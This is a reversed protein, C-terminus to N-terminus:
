DLYVSSPTHSNLANKLPEIIQRDAASLELYTMPMLPKRKFDPDSKYVSISKGTSLAKATVNSKLNPYLNPELLHWQDGSFIEVQVHYNDEFLKLDAPKRPESRREIISGELGTLIRAPIGQSRYFVVLLRAIEEQNGVRNQLLSALGEAPPFQATYDKYHVPTTLHEWIWNEFCANIKKLNQRDQPALDQILESALAAASEDASDLNLYTKFLEPSSLPTIQLSEPLANIKTADVQYTVTLHKVKQYKADSKIKKLDYFYPLERYTAQTEDKYYPFNSSAKTVYALADSDLLPFPIKTNEDMQALAEPYFDYELTYYLTKNDSKMSPYYTMHIGCGNLLLACCLLILCLTKHKTM